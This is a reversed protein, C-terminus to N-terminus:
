PSPVVAQVQNSYASETGSGNLATTVYFYTKGAQVSSDSYTTGVVLAPNIKNYPGGSVSGRYVNYGTVGTSTSAGWSLQVQHQPATVGAGTLTEITPNTLANSSFSISGSATGSSQPTFTVSVPTSQGAALALPFSVGSLSFEPNSTSASSVTVSSGSASLTATLSKNQGVTINGFDLAAPSLLLQGSATATGSLAISLNSNSADSVIVISGSATGSSKPSFATSFTYSQGATLTIPLSLGSISFGSGSVNAQSINVNSGGSNTVSQYQSASSGVQVSGFSNSTPNASLIGASAGAGTLPISLTSDYANSVISVSGSSTSGATPTFSISFTASQGSALTWPLAAHSVAFGSGSASIQQVTVSATGTNTLAALQTVNNGATGFNISSPSASLVGTSAGTGHLSVYLTSSSASSTFGISGDVRGQVLPAFIVQFQASNGPGLTMPFSLGSLSYGAGTVSVSSITINSTGTNSLRASLVNSGGVMVKGFWLNGPKCSLAGTNTFFFLPLTVIGTGVIATGAVPLLMLIAFCIVFSRLARQSIHM